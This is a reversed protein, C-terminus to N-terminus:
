PSAAPEMTRVSCFVVCGVTVENSHLSVLHSAGNSCMVPNDVSLIVINIIKYIKVPYRRM